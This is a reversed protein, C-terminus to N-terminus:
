MASIIKRATADSAAASSDSNPTIPLGSLLLAQEIRASMSAPSVSAQPRVLASILPEVVAADYQTSSEGTQVHRRIEGIAEVLMDTSPDILMALYQEYMEESPLWGDASIDGLVRTALWQQQAGCVGALVKAWLSIGMKHNTSTEAYRTAHKRNRAPPPATFEQWCHLTAVLTDYLVTAQEIDGADCHICMLSALMQPTPVVSGQLAPFKSQDPSAVETMGSAVYARYIREAVEARWLRVAGLEAASISDDRPRLVDEFQEYGFEPQPRTSQSAEDVSRPDQGTMVLHFMMEIVIRCQESTPESLAKRRAQTASPQVDPDLLM